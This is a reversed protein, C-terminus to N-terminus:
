HKRMEHVRDEQRDLSARDMGAKAQHVLICERSSDPLCVQGQLMIQM